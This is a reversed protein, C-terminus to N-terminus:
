IYGRNELGSFSNRQKKSRIFINNNLRQITEVKWIFYCLVNKTNLNIWDLHIINEHTYNNLTLQLSESPM